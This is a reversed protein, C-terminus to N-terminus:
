PLVVAVFTNPPYALAAAESTVIPWAGGQAASAAASDASAQAQERAVEADARANAADSAASQVEARAAAADDAAASSQALLDAIDAESLSSALSKVLLTGGPAAYRVVPADAYFAPVVGNVASSTLTSPIVDTTEADRLVVATLDAKTMPVSTGIQRTDTGNAEMVISQFPYFTVGGVVIVSTADFAM